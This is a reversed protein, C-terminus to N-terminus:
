LCRLQEIWQAKQVIEAYNLSQLFTLTIQPRLMKQAISQSFERLYPWLTRLSTTSAFLVLDEDKVKAFLDADSVVYKVAFM